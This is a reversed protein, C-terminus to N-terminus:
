LVFDGAGSAGRREAAVRWHIFVVIGGAQIGLALVRRRGMVLGNLGTV